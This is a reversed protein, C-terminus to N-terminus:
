YNGAAIFEARRKEPGKMTKVDETFNWILLRVGIKEAIIELAAHDIWVNKRDDGDKVVYGHRIADQYDKLTAKDSLYKKEPDDNLIQESNFHDQSVLMAVRDRLDQITMLEDVSLDKLAIEIANYGCNGDLDTEHVHLKTHKYINVAGASAELDRWTKITEDSIGWKEQGYNEIWPLWAQAVVPLVEDISVISRFEGDIKQQVLEWHTGSDKGTLKLIM